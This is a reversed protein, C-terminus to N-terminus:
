NKKGKGGGNEEGPKVTGNGAPPTMPKNPRGM